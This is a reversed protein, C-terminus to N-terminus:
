LKRQLFNIFNQFMLLLSYVRTQLVCLILVWNSVSHGHWGRAVCFSCESLLGPVCLGSSYFIILYCWRKTPIVSTAVYDGDPWRQVCPWRKANHQRRCPGGGEERRTVGLSDLAIVGVQSWLSFGSAMRNALWATKEVRERARIWLSPIIEDDGQQILLM